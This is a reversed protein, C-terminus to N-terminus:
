NERLAKLRSEISDMKFKAFRNELDKIKEDLGPEHDPVEPLVLTLSKSTAFTQVAHNEEYILIKPGTMLYPVPHRNKFNNILSKM